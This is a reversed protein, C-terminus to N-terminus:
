RWPMPKGGLVGTDFEENPPLEPIGLPTLLAACPWVAAVARADTGQRHDDSPHKQRSFM